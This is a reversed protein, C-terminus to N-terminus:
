KVINILIKIVVYNIILFTGFYYLLRGDLVFKLINKKFFQQLILIISILFSFFIFWFIVFARTEKQDDKTKAFIVSLFIFEFVITPITFAMLYKKLDEEIKKTNRKNTLAIYNTLTENIGVTMVFFLIFFIYTHNEISM